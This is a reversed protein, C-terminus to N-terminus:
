EDSGDGVAAEVIRAAESLVLSDMARETTEVGAPVAFVPVQDVIGATARSTVVATGVIEEEQRRFLEGFGPLEKDFMTGVAEPVVGASGVGTGGITVIADVDARGVLTVVTSQVDDYSPEVLERTAVADGADEIASIATDGPADEEVTGNSLTVVAYGLSAPEDAEDATEDAVATQDGAAEVEEDSEGTEEDDDDDRDSRTRRTDRSQFDVM